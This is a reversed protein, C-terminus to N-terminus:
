GYPRLPAQQQFCIKVVAVLALLLVIGLFILIGVNYSSCILIGTISEKYEYNELNLNLLKMNNMFFFSFFVTLFVFFSSIFLILNKVGSFFNNPSLAAVYSFMVLLGGVYILFMIYGYWSSFEFGVLLCSFMSLGMITVGLSLPQMMSPMIFAMSSVISGMIILMM